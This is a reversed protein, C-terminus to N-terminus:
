SVDFYAFGYHKDFFRLRMGKEENEEVNGGDMDTESKGGQEVSLM